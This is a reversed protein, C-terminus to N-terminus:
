AWGNKLERTNQDPVIPCVTSTFRV